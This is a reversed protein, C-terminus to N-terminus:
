SKPPPSHSAHCLTPPTLAPLPTSMHNCRQNSEGQRRCLCYGMQHSEGPVMPAMCRSRCAPYYHHATKHELVFVRVCVGQMRVSCASIGGRGVGRGRWAQRSGTCTGGQGWAGATTIGRGQRTGATCEGCICSLQVFRLAVQQQCTPPHRTTAHKGSHPINTPLSTFAQRLLLAARLLVRSDDLQKCSCSHCGGRDCATTPVM